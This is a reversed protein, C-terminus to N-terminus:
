ETFWVQLKEIKDNLKQKDEKLAINEEALISAHKAQVTGEDVLKELRVIEEKLSDDTGCKAELESVRSMLKTNEKELLGKGKDTEELDRMTKRLTIEMESFKTDKVAGDASALELEKIRSECDEILSKSQKNESQLFNLEERYKEEANQLKM